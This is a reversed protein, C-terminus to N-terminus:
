CVFNDLSVVYFNIATKNNFQSSYYRSTQELSRLRRELKKLEADEDHTLIKNKIVDLEKRFANIAHCIDLTCEESSEETNASVALFCLCLVININM